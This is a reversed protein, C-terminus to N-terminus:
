CIYEGSRCRLLKNATAGTKRTRICHKIMFDRMMVSITLCIAEVLNSFKLQSAMMGQAKGSSIGNIADELEKKAPTKDLESLIALREISDLVFPSISNMGGYTERDGPM